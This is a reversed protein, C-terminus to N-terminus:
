LIGLVIFGGPSISWTASASEFLEFHGNRDAFTSIGHSACLNGAAIHTGLTKEVNACINAKLSAFRERASIETNFFSLAYLSCKNRSDGKLVRRPDKIGPPLFSRISDHPHIWRYATGDPTRFNSPPCGLFQSVKDAYKFDFTPM